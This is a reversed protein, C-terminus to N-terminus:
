AYNALSMLGFGYGKAPGIGATITRTMSVPDLARLVGDYLVGLHTQFTDDKTSNKRSHMLGMNRVQCGMLEAGAKTLQRELWAHQDEENLLGLRKKDRTVTPNALLRFRYLHDTILVPEWQKTQPEDMLVQFDAFASNWDPPRISQVLIRKGIENDEIRFLVRPDEPYVMSLRQHVRYSNSIWNLAVRSRNINYLTLFIM